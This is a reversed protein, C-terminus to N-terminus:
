SSKKKTRRAFGEVAKLFEMPLPVVITNSQDYSIDALTELTRLHLAGPAKALTDAAKYLNKSATVEGQSKIIAARKEREAEAQRAMARKMDTPLEIDQIKIATIDIGWEDTEKDVLTKIEDAIHDRETLVFDLEKNGIVDRLATQGYQSVAYVYNQIKLVAKEPDVVRMYVVANVSVPVNDRTMVEQKPIDVTKIRTDVKRVGQVIPIVLNLGPNLTGSFKGLTFLVAREYEMVIKVASLLLLFGVFGLPLICGLSELIFLTM